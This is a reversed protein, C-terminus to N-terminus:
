LCLNGEKLVTAGDVMLSPNRIVCDLHFGVDNLGGVTVNSGFGFHMTGYAGEDVLMVGCLTARDNLGIGCEALVYVKDSQASQFLSKLKSQVEGDGYISQIRGRKVTLTVTSKLLGLSPHPISGDVVIVGEASTEIPSINVEIDPPSGMTGPGELFGPCRNSCRGEIDFSIHTGQASTVQMTRGKMLLDAIAHTLVVRAEYDVRLAPSALLELSYDPLSLYRGGRMTLVQRAKTHAMSQSSLGICLDVQAMKAGIEVSPEQGHIKLPFTELLSVKQTVRKAQTCFIDAIFRTSSDCVIVVTEEKKLRAYQGLLINV